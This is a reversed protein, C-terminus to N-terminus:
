QTQKSSPRAATLMTACFRHLLAHPSRRQQKHQASRDDAAVILRQHQATADNNSVLVFFYLGTCTMLYVALITM